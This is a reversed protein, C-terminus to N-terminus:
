KDETTTFKVIVARSNGNQFNDTTRFFRVVGASLFDFWPRKWFPFLWEFCCSNRNTFCDNSLYGLFDRYSVLLFIYNESFRVVGFCKSFIRWMSLNRAKLCDQSQPRALGIYMNQHLILITFDSKWHFNPAFTPFNKLESVFDYFNKGHQREVRKEKVKCRIWRRTM